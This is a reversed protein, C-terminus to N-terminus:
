LLLIRMALVFFSFLFLWREKFQIFLSVSVIKHKVKIINPLGQWREPKLSHEPFRIKRQLLKDIGTQIIVENISCINIEDKFSCLTLKSCVLRM